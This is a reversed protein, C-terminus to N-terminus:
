KYISLSSRRSPASKGFMLTASRATRLCKRCLVNLLTFLILSASPPYPFIRFHDGPSFQWRMLASRGNEDSDVPLILTGARRLGSHAESFYRSKKRFVRLWTVQPWESYESPAGVRETSAMFQCRPMHIQECRGWRGKGRSMEYWGESSQIFEVFFLRNYLGYWVLSQSQSQISNQDILASNV